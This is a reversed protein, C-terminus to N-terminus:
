SVAFITGGRREGKKQRPKLGLLNIREEVSKPKSARKTRVGGGLRKRGM